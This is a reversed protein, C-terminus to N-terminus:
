TKQKRDSFVVLHLDSEFGGCWSLPVSGPVPPVTKTQIVSNIIFRNSELDELDAPSSCITGGNKQGDETGGSVSGHKQTGGSVSGHKTPFLFFLYNM